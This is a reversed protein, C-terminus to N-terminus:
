EEKSSARMLNRSIFERVVNTSMPTIGVRWGGKEYPVSQEPRVKGLPALAEKGLAGSFSVRAKGGIAEYFSGTGAGQGGGLTAYAEQVLLMREQAAAAGEEDGVFRDPHLDMMLKRHAGKVERASAGAEVGLTERAEDRKESRSQLGEYVHTEFSDLPEFAYEVTERAVKRLSPQGQAGGELVEKVSAGLASPVLSQPDVGDADVAISLLAIPVWDGFEASADSRIAVSWKTVSTEPESSKEAAAAAPQETGNAEADIEESIEEADADMNKFRIREIKEYMEMSSKLLQAATPGKAVEAKGNKAGFGGGAAPSSAKKAKGKKPAKKAAFADSPTLLALLACILLLRRM